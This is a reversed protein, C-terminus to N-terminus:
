KKKFDPIHRPLNRHGHGSSMAPGELPRLLPGKQLLVPTQMALAAGMLGM